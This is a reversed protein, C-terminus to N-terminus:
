ETGGEAQAQAESLVNVLVQVIKTEMRQEVKEEVEKDIKEELKALIQRVANDGYTKMREEIVGRVSFAYFGMQELEERISRETDQKIKRMLMSRDDRLAITIIRAAENRVVEQLAERAIRRADAELSKKVEGELLENNELDINITIRNM